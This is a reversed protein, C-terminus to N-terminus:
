FSSKGGGFTKTLATKGREFFNKRKAGFNSIGSGDTIIPGNSDGERTPKEGRNLCDRVTRSSSRKGEGRRFEKKKRFRQPRRDQSNNSKKGKSCIDKVKGEFNRHTPAVHRIQLRDKKGGKLEIAGEM